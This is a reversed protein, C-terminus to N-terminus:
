FRSKPTLEGSHPSVGARRLGLRESIRILEFGDDALGPLEAELFDLTEPYPHGIGVAVGRKRAVFKLKEFQAALAEPSRDHDLFVDRRAALIGAENAMKLAVSRPTTFSDIFFLGDRANLEEMLWTMHGPHRTLLSGRHSSVGIVFPVSEIAAAFVSEFEERGMDLTISGAGASDTYDEAQLPLHLLVEKGNQYATEALLRARPTAPLIAVALPGPLKIARRGAELQYGLDDIIIAIRPSPEARVPPAAALLVAVLAIVGAKM